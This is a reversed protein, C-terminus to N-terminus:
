PLYLILYWIHSLIKLLIILSHKAMQAEQESAELQSVQTVGPAFGLKFQVQGDM